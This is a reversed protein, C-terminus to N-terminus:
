NRASRKLLLMLVGALIVTVAYWEFRTVTEGAIWVGLLM